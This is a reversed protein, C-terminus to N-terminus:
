DSRTTSMISSPLNTIPISVIFVTGMGVKSRVHISGGLKQLLGRTVSLGLGTGKGKSKTTFFPDFIRPLIHEQIGPGDDRIEITLFGPEQNKRIMFWISGGPSLVDVANLILNVFVQMLMQEDGHVLPLDEDFDTHLKIKAMRVQNAVLRLSENAISKLDLPQLHAESKRAFDLLNKVIRQSRETESLIDDLIEIKEEEPLTALDEKLMAASLMTNNLPNNLEHAVGAVLTGIARLKHSEVLIDHRHDLERIMKNFAEALQTFENKHRSAPKIPSFDGASIRGTYDMFRKLSYLLQRTLGRVVFVM